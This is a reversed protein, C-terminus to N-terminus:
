VAVAQALAHPEGMPRGPMAVDLLQDAHAKLARRVGHGMTDVYVRLGERRAFKLAPVFDSDGTVVVIARVLRCLALRAIDLGIRLDVGKQEIKPAFDEPRLHRQSKRLESQVRPKLHWGQAVCEGLRLAFDPKLELTDRLKTFKAVPATTNLDLVSGDLPNIVRGVAPPADYFYIRLLSLPKLLAHARIRDCAAEVDTATPFKRLSAGLKRVVFAGDLLIAFQPATEPM